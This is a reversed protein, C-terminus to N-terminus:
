VERTLQSIHELHLISRIQAKIHEAQDCGYRPIMIGDYKGEVQVVQDELCVARGVLHCERKFRRGDKCFIETRGGRTDNFAEDTEVHSLHLLHLIEPDHIAEETFTGNHVVGRLFGVAGCFPISFKGELPVRPVPNGTLKKGRPFTTYVIKEVDEATIGEERVIAACNLIGPHTPIGCPFQKYRLEYLVSPGDLRALLAKRDVKASLMELFSSDFIERNATFGSRALLACEVGQRAARAAQYAKAMSGLNAQVGGCCSAALGFAWCLQEESLAFISGAAAVAGFVGLTATAHWGVAFHEPLVCDGLAAMLQMGKLVGEAFAAGSANETEAAALAACCVPTELHLSMYNHIDDFDQNHASIGNVLAASLPDTKEGFGLLTCVGQRGSTLGHALKASEEGSGELTVCLWDMLATQLVTADETAPYKLPSAIYHALAQTVTRTGNELM